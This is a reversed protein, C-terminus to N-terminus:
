ASQELNSHQDFSDDHDSDVARRIRLFFFGGVTALLLAIIGSGISLRIKRGILPSLPMDGDSIISM